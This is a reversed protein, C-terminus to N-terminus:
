LIRWMKYLYKMQEEEELQNFAELEEEDDPETADNPDFGPSVASALVEGTKPNMVLCMIRDAQTAEMGEAVAKEAYYQIAEDITLVVNLGDEAEYYEESGNVLENGSLDTNKVWRGAVGSLYQDYELEIGTRGANDVTVSGLLQSAFNGLPYYRRTGESLSLSSVSLERIKDAQDKELYQAVKIIVQEKTLKAKISEADGDTIEALQQALEEIGAEDKEEALKAPWVWLSYCVVSTALEKGNRDYINGRKAEITVDKTQQDIAKQTLTDADVVQIWAIRFSLLIMLVAIIIFGIAIRKKNIVKVPTDKM